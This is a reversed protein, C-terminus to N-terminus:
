FCKAMKIIREGLLVKDFVKDYDLKEYFKSVKEDKALLSIGDYEEKKAVQEAYKMLKKGIGMGRAKENTAINSIYLNGKRCERFIMYKIRTILYYFKESLGEMKPIQKFDTKMSLRDLEDYPILIVAGLIKDNLEAVTIYETSYRSGKTKILSKLNDLSEQKSEGGWVYDPHVETCYILDAIVDIDPNTAKRIKIDNKGM